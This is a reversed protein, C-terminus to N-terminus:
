HLVAVKYKGKFDLIEANLFKFIPETKRCILATIQNNPKKYIDVLIRTMKTSYGKHRYKPLLATSALYLNKSELNTYYDINIDTDNMIKGNIIAEQFENSMGCLVSYGVTKKSINDCVFIGIFNNAYRDFYWQEDYDTKYCEKDIKRIVNVINEIDDFLAYVM